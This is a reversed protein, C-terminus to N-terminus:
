SIYKDNIDKLDYYHYDGYFLYSFIKQIKPIKAGMSSGRSTKINIDQTIDSIIPFQCSVHKQILKINTNVTNSKDIIKNFNQYYNLTNIDDKHTIKMQIRINNPNKNFSGVHILNANFIIADGINCKLSKTLDTFNVSNTNITIHSEPIVDLCRNMKELYFLITYSPYKQKSNFFDGNNDRHCTHVSSKKILWVYDQFIYDQGVIARIKNIIKQDSMIISKIAKSENTHIDTLLNNIKESSLINEIKCYGNKTIDCKCDCIIDSNLYRLLVSICVFIVLMYVMCTIFTIKM